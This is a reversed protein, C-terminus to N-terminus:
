LKLMWLLGWRSQRPNTINVEVSPMASNKDNLGGTAVSVM